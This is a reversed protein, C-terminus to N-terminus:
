IAANQLVTEKSCLGAWKWCAAWLREQAAADRSIEASVEATRGVYYGRKGQFEPEVTVAVLDRALDATPRLAATLYEVRAYLLQDIGDDM